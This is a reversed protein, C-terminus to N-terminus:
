NSIDIVKWNVTRTNEKVKEEWWEFTESYTRECRWQVKLNSTANGVCEETDRCHRVCKEENAGKLFHRLTAATPAGM